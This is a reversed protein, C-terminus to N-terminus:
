CTLHFAGIVKENRDIHENFKECAKATREAIVRIQKTRLEDVVDEPVVMMGSAGRGIVLVDPEYDLVDKLDERSLRHGLKRWWNKQVHDPFVIVDDSYKEGEIEISGFCYDDIHM